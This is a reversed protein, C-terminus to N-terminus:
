NNGLNQALSDIKSYSAKFSDCWLITSTVVALPIVVFNVFPIPLLVMVIFGFSWCLVPKQRLGLRMESFSVQNNDFAYDMYQIALVWAGFFLWLLPAIINVVPIMSLIFLLLFRPLFYLIKQLERVLSQSILLSIARFNLESDAAKGTLKAEVKEALIGNFPAALINVGVSFAYFLVIGSLLSFGLYFLWSLFSLWDPLWGMLYNTLDGFYSFAVMYLLAMLGINALLPVLIFLRLGPSFLIPLAKFYAGIVQFPQLIM